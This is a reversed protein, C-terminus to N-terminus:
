YHAVISYCNMIITAKHFIRKQSNHVFVENYYNLPVYGYHRLSIINYMVSQMYDAAINNCKLYGPYTQNPM